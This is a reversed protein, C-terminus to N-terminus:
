RLSCIRDAGVSELGAKKGILVGLSYLFDSAGKPSRFGGSIKQKFKMIRLDREVQNKTFPVELHSLFRLIDTQFAYLRLRL